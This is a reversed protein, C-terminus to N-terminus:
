LNPRYKADEPIDIQRSHPGFFFTGHGEQYKQKLVNWTYVHPHPESDDDDDYGDDDDDSSENKLNSKEHTKALTEVLMAKEVAGNNENVVVINQPHLRKQENWWSEEDHMIKNWKRHRTLRNLEKIYYIPKQSTTVESFPVAQKYTIGEHVGYNGRSCHAALTIDEHIEWIPKLGYQWAHGYTLYKHHIDKESEFFNHFHYGTPSGDKKQIQNGGEMRQDTAYYLPYPIHGSDFKNEAHYLSYGGHMGYGSSRYGHYITHDKVNQTDPWERKGRPHKSLDGIQDVCEGIM